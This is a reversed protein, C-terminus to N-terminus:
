AIRQSLTVIVDSEARGQSGTHTCILEHVEETNSIYAFVVWRVSVDALRLGRLVLMDAKSADDEGSFETIMDLQLVLGHSQLPLFRSLSYSSFQVCGVGFADEIIHDVSDCSKLPLLHRTQPSLRWSGSDARRVRVRSHVEAGPTIKEAM